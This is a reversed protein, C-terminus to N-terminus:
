SKALESKTHGPKGIIAKKVKALQHKVKSGVGSLINHKKPSAKQGAEREEIKIPTEDTFNKAEEDSNTRKDSSKEEAMKSEGKKPSQEEDTSFEPTKIDVFSEESGPAKTPLVVNLDRTQNHSAKQLAGQEEIKTTAEDTFSKAEEGDKTKEDYTKEGAMNLKDEKQSREADTSLEPKAMEVFNEEAELAEKASVVDFDREQVQPKYTEQEENSKTNVTQVHSEVTRNVNEEEIVPERIALCNQGGGDSEKPSEQGFEAEQEEHLNSKGPKDLLSNKEMVIQDGAFEDQKDQNIHLSSGDSQIDLAKESSDLESNPLEYSSQKKDECKSGASIEKEDVLNIETGIDLETIEAMKEDSIADTRKQSDDHLNEIEGGTSGSANITHHKEEEKEVENEQEAKITSEAEIISSETSEERKTSLPSKLDDTDNPLKEEDGTDPETALLAQRAVADSSREEPLSEHRLDTTGELTNKQSAKPNTSDDINSKLGGEIQTAAEMHEQCVSNTAREGLKVNRSEVETMLGPGGPVLEGSIEDQVNNQSVPAELEHTNRSLEEDSELKFDHTEESGELNHKGQEFILKNDVKYETPIPVLSEEQQSNILGSDDKTTEEQKMEAETELNSDPKTSEKGMILNMLFNSVPLDSQEDEKEEKETDSTEQEHIDEENQEKTTQSEEHEESEAPLPKEPFLLGRETVELGSAQEATNGDVASHAPLALNHHENGENMSEGLSTVASSAELNRRNDESTELNEDSLAGDAGNAKNNIAEDFKVAETVATCSTAMEENSNTEVEADSQETTALNDDVVQFNPRMFKNLTDIGVKPHISLNHEVDNQNSCQVAYESISRFGKNEEVEEIETPQADIRGHTMEAFPSITDDMKIDTNDNSHLKSADENLPKTQIEDNNVCTDENQMEQKNEVEDVIEEQSAQIAQMGDNAKNICAKEESHVKPEVNRPVVTPNETEDTTGDQEDTSPKVVAADTELNEKEDENHNEADADTYLTSTNNPANEQEPTEKIETSNEVKADAIAPTSGQQIHPTQENMLMETAVTETKEAEFMDTDENWNTTGIENSQHELLTETTLETSSDDHKQEDRQIEEAQEKIVEDEKQQQGLNVKQVDDDPQEIASVDVSRECVQLQLEVSHLQEDDQDITHEGSKIADDETVAKSQEKIQEINNSIGVTDDGSSQVDDEETPSEGKQTTFATKEGIDSSEDKQEIPEANNIETGLTEQDLEVSNQKPSMGNDTPSPDELPAAETKPYSIEEDNIAETAMMEGAEDLDDVQQIDSTPETTAVNSESVIEELGADQSTPHSAEEGETADVSSYEKVSELGHVQKTDALPDTENAANDEATQEELTAGNSQGTEEAKLLEEKIDESQVLLDPDNGPESSEQAANETTPINDQTSIEEAEMAATDEVEATKDEQVEQDAVNPESESVDNESVPKELNSVGHQQDDETHVDEIGTTEETSDRELVQQVDSALETVTPKEETRTPEAATSVISQQPETQNQTTDTCKDKVAEQEPAQQIDALPASATLSDDTSEHPIEETEMFKTENIEEAPVDDATISDEAEVPETNNIEELAPEQAPPIDVHIDPVAENALAVDETLETINADTSNSIAGTEMTETGKVEEAPLDNASINVEVEFHEANETEELEPEQARPIDVTAETAIVHQEPAAEDALAVNIKADETPETINADTSESIVETEKVEEAPLDTATINEEVEVHEANKTEELEAEQARPIDVTAETAIVHEEPAAEDAVAVNRNADETPESTNADTNKNIVKNETAETENVEEAPLDSASMNEKVEVPESNKIEELEPEQARPIQVTTEAAIVHEEHAADDELDEALKSNNADISEHVAETEMAESAKIEEASQDTASINEEMEDPETNKVEELEPEQAQPIDITAETETGHEEPAAEEALAVNSKVANTLESINAGTTEDPIMETEMAEIDKIEEKPLDSAIINDEVEVHESNKIDELEPEQVQPIDATAEIAKAHEDPAAQDALPVNSKVDETLDACENQIEAIETAETDNVEETPLENTTVNDHVEAPETNKTEELEPEDVPPIDVPGEFEQVLEEATKEEAIVDTSKVERTEETGTASELNEQAADGVITGSSQNSIEGAKVDNNEDILEPEETQVEKIDSVPERATVDEEPVSEESSSVISQQSISQPETAESDRMEDAPEPELIEPESAIMNEEAEHDESRAVEVQPMEQGETAGSSSGEASEIVLSKSTTPDDEHTPDELVTADMQNDTNKTEELEPEEVPPTQVPAELEQVHDEPTEEEAIADTSKVDKTEKTVPASELNEATDLSPEAKVKDESASDETTSVIHSSSIGQPETTETGRFEVPEQEELQQISVDTLITTSDETAIEELSAVNSESSQDSTEKARTDKNGEVDEAQELNNVKQADCTIESATANEESAPEDSISVNSEQPLAKTKTAETGTVEATSETKLMDSPIIDEQAPHRQDSAEETEVPETNQIEEPELGRMKQESVDESTLVNNQQDAEEVTAVNSAEVIDDATNDKIEEASEVNKVKQADSTPGEATVDDEVHDESASISRENCIEQTESSETDKVEVSGQELILQIDDNSSEIERSNDETELEESAAVHSQQTIEQTETVGTNKVDELEIVQPQCAPVGDEEALNNLVDLPENSAEDMEATGSNKPEEELGQVPQIAETAEKDKTDEAITVNSQNSTEEAKADELGKIEESEVSNPHQIDSSPEITPINDKSTAEEFAVGSEQVTKGTDVEKADAIEEALGQSQVEQVDLAPERATADHEPTTEESASVNSEHSTEETKEHVPDSTDEQSEQNLVEQDGNTSEHAQETTTMDEPMDTKKSKPVEEQVLDADVDDAQKSPQDELKIIENTHEAIDEDEPFSEKDVKAPETETNGDTADPLPASDDANPDHSTQVGAPADAVVEDHPNCSTSAHQTDETVKALELNQGQQPVTPEDAQLTDKQVMKDEVAAGEVDQEYHEKPEENESKLLSTDETTSEIHSFSDVTEKGNSKNSQDTNIGDSSAEVQENDKQGNEQPKENSIKAEKMHGNLSSATGNPTHELPIEAVSPAKEFVQDETVRLIGETSDMIKGKEKIDGHSSLKSDLNVQLHTTGLDAVEVQVEEGDAAERAEEETVM